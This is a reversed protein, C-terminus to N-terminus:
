MQEYFYECQIQREIYRDSLITTNYSLADENPSAPFLATEGTIVLVNRFIHKMTHFISANLNLIEPGFYNVASPINCLAIFGGDDLNSLVTQFFEVTYYRNTSANSPEGVNVIIIDYPKKSQKLFHRGDQHWVRINSSEWFPPKSTSIYDKTLNYAKEDLEVYDVQVRPYKLIEKIAGGMGGSILLVSEPNKHQSMILHTM